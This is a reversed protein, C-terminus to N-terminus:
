LDAVGALDDGFMTAQVAWGMTEANTWAWVDLNEAHQVFRSLTKELANMLSSGHNSIANAEAEVDLTLCGLLDLGMSARTHAVQFRTHLHEMEELELAMALKMDAEEQERMAMSHDLAEALLMEEQASFPTIRM